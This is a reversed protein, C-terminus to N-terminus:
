GNFFSLFTRHAFFFSNGKKANKFDKLTYVRELMTLSYFVFYVPNQTQDKNQDAYSELKAIM